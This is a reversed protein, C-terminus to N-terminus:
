LLPALLLLLIPCDVGPTPIPTQFVPDIRIQFGSSPSSFKASCKLCFFSSLFLSLLVDVVQKQKQKKDNHHGMKPM